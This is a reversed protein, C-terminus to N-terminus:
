ILCLLMILLFDFDESNGGRCKNTRIINFTKHRNSLTDIILFGQRFKGDVDPTYFSLFEKSAGYIQSGTVLRGRAHQTGIRNHDGVDVLDIASPEDM